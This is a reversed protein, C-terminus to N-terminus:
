GYDESTAEGGNEALPISPKDCLFPFPLSLIKTSPEFEDSLSCSDDDM